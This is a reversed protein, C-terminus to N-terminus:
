RARGGPPIPPSAPPTGAFGVRHITSSGRRRCCPCSILGCPRAATVAATESATARNGAGGRVPGADHTEQDDSSRRREDAIQQRRCCTAASSTSRTPSCGGSRRATYMEFHSAPDEAALAVVHRGSAKAPRYLFGACDVGHSSFRVETRTVTLETMSAEEGKPHPMAHDRAVVLWTSSSAHRQPVSAVACGCFEAQELATGLCRKTVKSPYTAKLRIAAVAKAMSGHIGQQGLSGSGRRGPWALLRDGRM